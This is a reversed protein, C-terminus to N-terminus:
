RPLNTALMDWILQKSLILLIRYFYVDKGFAGTEVNEQKSIVENFDGFIVM